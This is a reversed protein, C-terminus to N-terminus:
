SERRVLQSKRGHLRLYATNSTVPPVLPLLNRVQPEDVAVYGLHENKLFAVAEPTHWSRDRFEISLPYRPLLEPVATLFARNKQQIAFGPRFSSFWRAWADRM